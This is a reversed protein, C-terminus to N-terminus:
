VAGHTRKYAAGMTPLRTIRKNAIAVVNRSAGRMRQPAPAASRDRRLAASIALAFASQSCHPPGPRLKMGFVVPSAGLQGDPPGFFSQLRVSPSPCEDM